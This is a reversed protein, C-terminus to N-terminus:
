AKKIKFTLVGDVYSRMIDRQDLIDKATFEKSFLESRTSKNRSGDMAVTADSYKRSLTMKIQRGQTSLFVNEKEYEAIPMSIFVEKENEMMKPMLKEIRYFPDEIRDAIVKKESTTSDVMKKVDNKLQSTLNNLISEHEKVILTYRVKFDEDRQKLMEKQHKDQYQLQDNNVRNKELNLRKHKENDESMIKKLDDKQRLMEAQHARINSEISNRFDKESTSITSNYNEALANIEFKSNNELDIKQFKSNTAMEKIDDQTKSQLESQIDKSKLYQDQYNDEIQTKLERIKENGNGKLFEEEKQAAERAKLLKDQYHNLKSQFLNTEDNMRTQNRELNQIYDAEGATKAMEIKKDYLQDIKKIEEEKSNIKKELSKNLRKYLDENEKFQNITDTNQVKM